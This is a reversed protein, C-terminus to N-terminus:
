RAPGNLIDVVIDLAEVPDAMEDGDTFRARLNRAAEVGREIRNEAEARLQHPTKGGPRCYVIVYRERAGTDPDTFVVDQQVYNTPAPDHQDLMARAAAVLGKTAEGANEITMTFGGGPGIELSRLQPEFPELEEVRRQLTQMQETLALAVAPDIPRQQQTEAVVHLLLHSLDM